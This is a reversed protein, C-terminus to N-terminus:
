EYFRTGIKNIYGDFHFNLYRLSGSWGDSVMLAGVLDGTNKSLLTAYGEVTVGHGATGTSNDYPIVFSFIAINGDDICNTFFSYSPTEDHKYKIQIDRKECFEVLAPGLNGVPTGGLTYNSNVESVKTGSLNWLEKYDGSMDNFDLAGYFAACHYLATVGCAYYGTNEVFTDKSFGIFESLHNTIILQYDEYLQQITIFVDDWEYTTRASSTNLSLTEFNLSDGYNNVVTNTSSDIIGYTFPAIKYVKNTAISYTSITSKSVITEYPNKSDPEFSYESILSNGTNDFIVYGNPENGNYFNVIYGIAQGNEDYFKIPNDATLNADPNISGAFREAMEIAIQDTMKVLTTDNTEDAAFSQVVSLVALILVLILSVIRKQTKKM